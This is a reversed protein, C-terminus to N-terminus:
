LGEPHLFSGFHLAHLRPMSRPICAFPSFCAHLATALVFFAIMGSGALGGVEAATAVGFAFRAAM